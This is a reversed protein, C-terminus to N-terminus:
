AMIDVEPGWERVGEDYLTGGEIHAVLNWVGLICCAFILMCVFSAAGFPVLRKRVEIQV